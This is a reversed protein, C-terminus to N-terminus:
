PTVLCWWATCCPTVTTTGTHAAVPDCCCAARLPVSRMWCVAGFPLQGLFCPHALCNGGFCVCACPVYVLGGVTHDARWLWTNDVIVNSSNISVMVDAQVPVSDPGGVRAFVDSMVGAPAWGCGVVCV